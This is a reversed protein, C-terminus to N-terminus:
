IIARLLALDAFCFAAVLFSTAIFLRLPRFDGVLRRLDVVFRLTILRREGLLRTALLLDVLRRLELPPLPKNPLIGNILEGM